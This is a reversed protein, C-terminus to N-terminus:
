LNPDPKPHHEAKWLRGTKLERRWSNQVSSVWPRPICALNEICRTYDDPRFYFKSHLCAGLGDSNCPYEAIPESVFRSMLIDLCVYGVPVKMPRTMANGDFMLSTQRGDSLCDILLPVAISPNKMLAAVAPVPGIDSDVNCGHPCTVTADAAGDDFYHTGYDPVALLPEILRKYAVSRPKPQGFGSDYVFRNQSPTQAIATSLLVITFLLGRM